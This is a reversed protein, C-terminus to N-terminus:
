LLELYKDKFILPIAKTFISQPGGLSEKNFSFVGNKEMLFQINKYKTTKLAVRMEDTLILIGVRNEIARLKALTILESPALSTRNAYYLIFYFDIKDDIKLSKEVVIVRNLIEEIPLPLLGVKKIKIWGNKEPHLEKGHSSVSLKNDINIIELDAKKNRNLSIRIDSYECRSLSIEYNEDYTKDSPIVAICFGPPKPGDFSEVEKGNQFYQFIIKKGNDYAICTSKRRDNNNYGMTCLFPGRIELSRAKIINCWKQSIVNGGTLDVLIEAGNKILNHTILPFFMDHCIMVGIKRGRFIIPKFMQDFRGKYSEFEYALKGASSHKIYIHKETEVDEHKPNYFIAVQYGEKSEVGSLVAVEMRKSLKCVESVANNLKCNYIYGEPFVILDANKQIAFRKVEDEWKERKTESQTSDPVCLVVKIPAVKDSKMTQSTAIMSKFKKVDSTKDSNLNCWKYDQAFLRVTPKLGKMEPLFDRLVDYWARQEDRYPPDNDKTDIKECLNIWSKASYGLKLSKPYHQLSLKRPLTFHQSEDFEVIFGPNPVFFDCNPLTKAKIFEKFGRHKQLTTYIDKLDDYYSSNQFDEPYTGIKFKYNTEVKGYIKELLVKITKKCSPCRENHVAKKPHKTTDIISPQLTTKKSYKDGEISFGLHKLFNNSETGGNFDQPDLEINNAFKNALSIVYKPPYYKDNYELLFKKSTRGKPVGVEEIEEIAKLIHERKINKPIM